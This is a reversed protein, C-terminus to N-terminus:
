SIVSLFLTFSSASTLMLSYRIMPTPPVRLKFRSKLTFNRGKDCVSTVNLISTQEASSSSSSLCCSLSSFLSTETSISAMIFPSSLSLPFIMFSTRSISSFLPPAMLSHSTFRKLAVNMGISGSDM